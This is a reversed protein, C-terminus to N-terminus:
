KCEEGKTKELLLRCVLNERSQLESTHEESREVCDDVVGLRGVFLALSGAQLQLRQRTIGSRRALAVAAGQGTARTTNETLKTQSIPLADHLSLTYIAATLKAAVLVSFILHTA